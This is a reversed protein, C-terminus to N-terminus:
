KASFKYITTQRYEQNPYLVTSPFNPKNPSDPFHQAELCFGYRKYYVRGDKGTITGDLFNGSYFQMGPETTYVEMIRGTTAEFVRAALALKGNSGSLVWNHDYGLGFILQKYKENIRAGIRTPKTFDMPTGKVPTIEGTPILDKDVPTFEVANLMLEHGLVDGMGAGALNFYSHNTLNVITKEDTTASYDIRLENKNTLAYVVTVPLKGPYGEEGDHSIYTLHLGVGNKSTLEKAKWTVKDFGVVGGHLHNEGNNQALQYKIDDLTFRGKAIRNAYRGILAGFYPNDKLYGELAGYGLVVDGLMGNRDPVKLSVIIGGYTTIKAELGKDNTLTYLDVPTGDATKGFAQKEITPKAETTSAGAWLSGFLMVLALVVIFKKLYSV